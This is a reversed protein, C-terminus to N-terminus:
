HSIWTNVAERIEEVRQAGIGRVNLLDADEASIIESIDNFGGARLKDVVHDELELFKIDAAPKVNAPVDESVLPEEAVQIDESKAPPAVELIKFMPVNGPLRFSMMHEVDSQFVYFEPKSASFKYETGKHTQSSIRTRSASGQYALKVLDDMSQKVSEASSKIVLTRKGGCSSCAMKRKDKLVDYHTNKIYKLLNKKNRFNDERRWGLHMNYTILPTKLRTGCVGVHLLRLHFDWDEWGEIDENFGGVSLIHQKEYIGTIPSLSQNLIKDYDWDSAESHEASGNGTNVYWDGYVWGGAYEHAALLSKLAHPQLTDDVDLFVIKDALAAKVGINRANAVGYNEERDIFRVFGMGWFENGWSKGTDNIVIAEWDEETQAILSDICTQIHHEHWPGVPIVVSVKPPSFNKVVSARAPSTSEVWPFWSTWVVSGKNNTKGLSVDRHTYKLTYDNIVTAKYGLSLARTWFDADETGNRIRRRYGGVREWVKRKYLSSYPLRNYGELQLKLSANNPWGSAQYPGDLATEHYIHLKGAVIDYEDVHKMMNEVADPYLRDDADLPLIYRGIALQEIGYNRASSVHINDEFTVAKIKGEYKKIIEWSNDTSADDVVIVEVNPYTQNLASDISQEVFQGLNHCPIIISVLDNYRYEAAEYVKVYGDIVDKWQYNDVVYQRANAGLREGHEQCYRLGELLDEYNHPEALYGTEKHIISEATGGFNWSLVCVGSAMAELVGFCPGGSEKSLALYIGAGAVVDRMDTPSVNGFIYVNDSEDGHTSYFLTDKALNALRNMEAPNSASDARAKNWLVYNQREKQPVWEDTDIGHHVVIPSAGTYRSISRAVFQSPTTVVDARRYAELCERNVKQGLKGWGNEEWLMGHSSVVLPKDDPIDGWLGIHAHIIDADSKNDVLEIGLDPLYKYLGDYVRYMGGSSEAAKSGLWIKM